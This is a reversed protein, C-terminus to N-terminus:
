DSITASRSAGERRFGCAWLRSPGTSITTPRIGARRSISARCHNNKDTFRWSLCLVTAAAPLVM